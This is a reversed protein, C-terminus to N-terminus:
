KEPGYKVAMIDLRKYHVVLRAHFDNFDKMEASTWLVESLAIMRPFIQGDIAPETRALHTWMNGQGGLIYKRNESSLGAVPDFSYTEKLPTSNVDYDFYCHSTPSMVVKHGMGAAKIGGQTGRWSMVAANEALGGELIEDWGILKRGKSNIFKEIRRIFYSQLENADKLDEQRIRARCKPCENWRDKPVEDGGIHIYESPYMEMVEILVNELFSFVEDNGACFVENTINPGKGFPFIETKRGRCSLQPYAVFVSSSHGPMEIEPVITVYRRRGYEVIQRIDDQSYYGSKEDPYKESFRSCVKTLEPYKKIEPRWGQDDTLHLQLVNMKYLALLDIYRMIYEKTLFTRSCDLLLGRWVFAPKDEIEVCPVTLGANGAAKASEVTAPLLQRLTQVGYFLGAPKAAKVAISNPTVCLAYGEEGLCQQNELRLTIANSYNGAEEFKKIELDYGSSQRIIQALYGGMDELGAESPIYIKTGRSFRFCGKNVTVNGPRPIINIQTQGACYQRGADNQCGATLCAFTVFIIIGRITKRWGTQEAIVAIAV